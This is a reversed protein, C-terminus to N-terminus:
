KEEIHFLSQLEFIPVYEFIKSNINIWTPIRSLPTYTDLSDSEVKLCFRSGFKVIKGSVKVIDGNSEITGTCMDNEFFKSDNTSFGWKIEYIDSSKLWSKTYEDNYELVGDQNPRFYESEEKDLFRKEDKNWIKYLM